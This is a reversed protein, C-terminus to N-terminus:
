AESTVMGHTVVDETVSINRLGIVPPEETCHPYRYRGLNSLKTEPVPSQDRVLNSSAADTPATAFRPRVASSPPQHRPRTAHAVSRGVGGLVQASCRVHAAFRVSSHLSREPWAACEPWTTINPPLGMDMHAFLDHSPPDKGSAEMARLNTRYM